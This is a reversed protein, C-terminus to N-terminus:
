LVLALNGLDPLMECKGGDEEYQANEAKCVLLTRLSVGHAEAMGQFEVLRYSSDLICVAGDLTKDAEGKELM